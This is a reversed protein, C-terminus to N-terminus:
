VGLFFAVYLANGAGVYDQALRLQLVYLNPRLPQLVLVRVEGRHLYRAGCILLASLSYGM